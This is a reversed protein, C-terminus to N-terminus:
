SEFGHKVLVIVPETSGVSLATGNFSGDILGQGSVNASMSTISINPLIVMVQEKPVTVTSGGETYSITEKSCFGLMLAIKDPNESAYYQQRFAEFSASYPVDCQVTVARQGNVPQNAYLGSCYTAPTDELGNDFTVTAGKIDYVTDAPCTDWDWNFGSETSTGATASVLRAKTCKYSAKGDGSPVTWATSSNYVEKYGKFDVDAKVFDGATCNLTLTGITLGQYEFQKTGRQLRMQSTPLATGVNALKYTNVDFHNSSSHTSSTKNGLTVEFLWDAFGPKLITSIGGSVTVSGLDQEPLTKSGILTAEDLKNYTASMTEGTMNILNYTPSSPAVGYSAEKVAWAASGQGTIYGSM